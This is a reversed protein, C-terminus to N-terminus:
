AVVGRGPTLDVVMKADLCLLLDSWFAIPKPQTSCLQMGRYTDCLSVPTHKPDIGIITAKDAASIRSLAEWPAAMFITHCSSSTTAAREAADDGCPKAVISTRPVPLSIWGARNESAWAVVSGMRQDPQRYLKIESMNRSSDIVKSIAQRCNISRGDFCLLIDAPGVQQGMFEMISDINLDDHPMACPQYGSEIYTDADLVFIRHGRGPRGIFNYALRQKGFWRVVVSLPQALFEIRPLRQWLAM